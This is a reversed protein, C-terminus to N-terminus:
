STLAHIRLSVHMLPAGTVADFAQVTLSTPRTKVPHFDLAVRGPQIDVVENLPEYGAGTAHILYRGAELRAEFVKAENQLLDFDFEAEEPRDLRFARVEFDSSLPMFVPEDVVIENGEEDRQTVRQTAQVYEFRHIRGPQSLDREEPPIEVRREIMKPTLLRVATSAVVQRRLGVFLECRNQVRQENFINITRSESEFCDTEELTM